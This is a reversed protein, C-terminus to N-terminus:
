GAHVSAPLYRESKRSIKEYFLPEQNHTDYAVAYNFVLEGMDVKPHGFEVM